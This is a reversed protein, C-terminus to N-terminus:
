VLWGPGMSASAGSCYPPPWVTISRPSGETPAARLQGFRSRALLVQQHPPHSKSDLDDPCCSQRRPSRSRSCRSQGYRCRGREETSSSSPTWFEPCKAPGGRTPRWRAAGADRRQGARTRRRGAGVDVEESSELSSDRPVSQQRCHRDHGLGSVEVAEAACGSKMAETPRTGLSCELPPGRRRPWTM